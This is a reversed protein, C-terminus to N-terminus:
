LISGSDRMKWDISSFYKDIVESTQFQDLVWIEANKAFLSMSLTIWRCMVIVVFFFEKLQISYQTSLTTIFQYLQYYFLSNYLYDQRLLDDHLLHQFLLQSQKEVMEVLEQTGQYNLDALDAYHQQIQDIVCHYIQYDIERESTKLLSPIDKELQSLLDEFSKQIIAMSQQKFLLAFLRDIPNNVIDHKTIIGLNHM